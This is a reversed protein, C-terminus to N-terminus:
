IATLTASRATCSYSFVDMTRRVSRNSVGRATQYSACDARRIGRIAIQRSSSILGKSFNAWERSAWASLTVPAIVRGTVLPGARFARRRSPAAFGYGQEWRLVGDTETLTFAVRPDEVPQVRARRLRAIKLDDGRYLEPTYAEVKAADQVQVQLVLRSGGKLDLGLKINEAVNAKLDALSKPIGIIGWVCVLITVVIVITKTKLNKQM